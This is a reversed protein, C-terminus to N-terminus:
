RFYPKDPSMLIETIDSSNDIENFCEKLGESKMIVKNNVNLSSFDFNLAMDTDM